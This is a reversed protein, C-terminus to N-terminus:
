KIISKVSGVVISFVAIFGCIFTTWMGMGVNKSLNKAEEVSITEGNVKIIQGLSDRVVDDSAILYSITVIGGFLATSLLTKKLAEPKRFLGIISFLVTIVAIAILLSITYYVFPGVIGAGQEAQITEDGTVMVQVFFYIAIFSIIATM